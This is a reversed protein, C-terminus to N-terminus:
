KAAKKQAQKEAKIRANIEDRFFYLYNLVADSGGDRYGAGKLDTVDMDVFKLTSPLYWVHLDNHDKM